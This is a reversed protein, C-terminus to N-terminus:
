PGSMMAAVASGIAEPDDGEGDDWEDEYGPPPISLSFDTKTRHKLDGGKVLLAYVASCWEYITCTFPDLGSLRLRGLMEPEVSTAILKGTSWWKRGTAEALLRLSEERVQVRARPDEILLDALTDRSADDCLAAALHAPHEMAAIWDAAPRHPITLTTDAIRIRVPDRRFVRYRSATM